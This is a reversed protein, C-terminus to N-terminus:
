AASGWRSSQCRYRTGKKVAYSPTMQNGEADVADRITSFADVIRGGLRTPLSALALAITLVVSM